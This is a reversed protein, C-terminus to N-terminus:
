NKAKLRIKWGMMVGHIQLFPDYSYGYLHERRTLLYGNISVSLQGSYNVQGGVFVKNRPDEKVTIERTIIKDPKLNQFSLEFSDLRNMFVRMKWRARYENEKVASDGYYRATYYDQMDKATDADAAVPYPVERIEPPSFKYIIVPSDKAPLYQTDVKVLSSDVDPCNGKKGCEQQMFIIAMLVGIVLLYSLHKM